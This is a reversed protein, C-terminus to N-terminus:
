GAGGALGPVDGRLYYAWATTSARTFIVRRVEETEYRVLAWSWFEKDVDSMM